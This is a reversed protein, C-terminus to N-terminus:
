VSHSIQNTFNAQVFNAGKLDCERLEIGFCDAGKFNAMSLQCSKFSADRLNSYEFYCGEVAGQEIFACDEFQADRLNARSFDCRYFRCSKFYSDSLDQGSFDVQDFVENNNTM